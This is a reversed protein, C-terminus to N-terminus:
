QAPPLGTYTRYIGENCPVCFQDGEGEVPQRNFYIYPGDNAVFVEPDSRMRPPDDPTLQVLMKAADIGESYRRISALMRAM